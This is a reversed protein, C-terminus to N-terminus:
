LSFLHTESAVYLHLEETLATLSTVHPTSAGSWGGDAQGGAFVLEVLVPLRASLAHMGEDTVGDDV